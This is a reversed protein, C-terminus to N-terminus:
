DKKLKFFDKWNRVKFAEKSSKHDLLKSHNVIADLMKVKEISVFEVQNRLFEIEKEKQIAVEKLLNNEFELRQKEAEIESSTGEQEKRHAKPFLRFFEAKDIYYKGDEKSASLKGSTIMNQIHRASYGALEGAQKPTLWSFNDKM